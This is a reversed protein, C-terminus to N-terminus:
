WLIDCSKNQGGAKILSWVLIRVGKELSVIISHGGMDDGDLGSAAVLWGCIQLFEGDGAVAEKRGLAGRLQEGIGVILRPFEHGLVKGLEDVLVADSVLYGLEGDQLCVAEQGFGLPPPSIDYQCVNRVGVDPSPLLWFLYAHTRKGDLMM